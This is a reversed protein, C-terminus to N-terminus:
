DYVRQLHWTGAHMDQFVIVLLGAVTVLKFYERQVHERWWEDDVRWRKAVAQVRYTQGRWVFHLPTGDADVQMSITEGDGWFRTM